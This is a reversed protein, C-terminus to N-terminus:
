IESRVPNIVPAGLKPSAWEYSAPDGAPKFPGAALPGDHGMGGQKDRRVDALGPLAFAGPPVHAPRGSM